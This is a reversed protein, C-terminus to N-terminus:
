RGRDATVGDRGWRRAWRWRWIPTNAHRWGRPWSSPVPGSWKLSSVTSRAHSRWTPVAQILSLDLKIIDPHVLPMMALSAPEAGVDDIAIGLGEARAAAAADLVAAPDDALYRETLEVVINLESMGTRITELLDPPCEARLAAPEVNVFLTFDPPLGANLAARFAAARCIWDLEFARGVAYAHEFMAAPMAFPSHQPGRALAEFGMVRSSALDVVPQFIVSVQRRDVLRDFEVRVDDVAIGEAAAHHGM